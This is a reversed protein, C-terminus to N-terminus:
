AAPPAGGTHGDAVPLARRFYLAIVAGIVFTTFGGFLLGGREDPELQLVPGLTAVLIGTAVGWGLAPKWAWPRLRWAGVAATLGLIGVILQEGALLMPSDGYPAFSERIQLLANVGLLGVFVTVIRLLIRRPRAPVPAPANPEPSM